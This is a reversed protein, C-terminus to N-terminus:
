ISTSGGVQVSAGGTITGMSQLIGTIEGQGDLLINAVAALQGMITAFIAAAAAYDGSQIAMILAVVSAIIASVAAILQVVKQIMEAINGGGGGGGGESGGGSQGGSNAPCDEANASDDGGTSQNNGSKDTDDTGSTGGVKAGGSQVWTENKSLDLNGGFCENYRQTAQEVLQSLQAQADKQTCTANMINNQVNATKYQSYQSDAETAKQTATASANSQKLDGLMKKIDTDAKESDKNVKEIAQKTKTDTACEKADDGISSTGGVKLEGNLAKTSKDLETTRRTLEKNINDIMQQADRQQNAQALQVHLASVAGQTALLTAAAVIVGTSLLKLKSISLIKM